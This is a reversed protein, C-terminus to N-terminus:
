AMRDNEAEEIIIEYKHKEVNLVTEFMTRTGDQIFQGM